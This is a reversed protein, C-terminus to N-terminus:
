LLRWRPAAASTSAIPSCCHFRVGDPLLLRLPHWRPAATSASATPSCCIFRVGDPLLTLASAVPSCCGFHVCDPLLQLLRLLYCCSFHICAPLEAATSVSRHLRAPLLLQLPRLRPAAARCLSSDPVQNSVYAFSPSTASRTFHAFSSTYTILSHMCFPVVVINVLQLSTHHTAPDGHYVPPHMDEESSRSM